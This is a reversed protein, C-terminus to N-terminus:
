SDCVKLDRAAIVCRSPWYGYAQRESQSLNELRVSFKPALMALLEIGLLLIIACSM